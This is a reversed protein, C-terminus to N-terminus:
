STSTSAAQGSQSQEALLGNKELVRYIKQASKALRSVDGLTPVGAPLM